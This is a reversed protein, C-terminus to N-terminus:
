INYDTSKEYSDLLGDLGIFFSNVGEMVDKINKLDVPSDPVEIHGGNKDWGYRFTIGKKDLEDMERIINEVYMDSNDQPAGYSHIIKKCRCWLRILNHEQNVKKSSECGYIVIIWKMALELGHRYNFLIPYLVFPKEHEYGETTALDVLGAAAKMYGDWLHAHKSIPDNSFYVANEFDNEPRILKDHKNPWSFTKDLIETFNEPLKEM